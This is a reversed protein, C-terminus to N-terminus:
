AMRAISKSKLKSYSPTSGLIEHNSTMRKVVLGHSSIPPPSPTSGLIEHNSTMRKVVLGHSRTVGTSIIVLTHALHHLFETWQSYLANRSIYHFYPLFISVSPTSGLIEHNSTM